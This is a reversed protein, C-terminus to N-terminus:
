IEYNFDEFMDQPLDGWQVANPSVVEEENEDEGWSDLNEEDKWYNEDFDQKEEDEKKNMCSDWLDKWYDESEADNNVEKDIDLSSCKFLTDLFLKNVNNKKVIVEKKDNICVSMKYYQNVGSFDLNLFLEGDLVYGSVLADPVRVLHDHYKEKPITKADLKIGVKEMVEELM